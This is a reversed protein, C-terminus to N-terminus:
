LIHFPDIPKPVPWLGIHDAVSRPTFPVSQGQVYCAIVSGAVSGLLSEPSSTGCTLAYFTGVEYSPINAGTASSQLQWVFIPCGQPPTSAHASLYVASDVAQARMAFPGEVWNTPCYAPVDPFEAVPVAYADPLVYVIEVGNTADTLIISLDLSTAGVSSQDPMPSGIMPVSSTTIPPITANQGGAPGLAMSYNAAHNGLSASLNFQVDSTKSTNQVPINVVPTQGKLIQYPAKRSTLAKDLTEM